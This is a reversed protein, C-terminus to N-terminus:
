ALKQPASRRLLSQGVWRTGICPDLPTFPNSTSTTAPITPSPGSERTRGMTTWGQQVPPFDQDDSSAEMGLQDSGSSDRRDEWNEPTISRERKSEVNKRKRPSSTSETSSSGSNNSSSFKRNDVARDNSSRSYCQSSSSPSPSSKPSSSTNPPHPPTSSSDFPFTTPAHTTMNLAKMSSVV